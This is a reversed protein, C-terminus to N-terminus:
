IKMTDRTCFCLCCELLYYSKDNFSYKHKWAILRYSGQATTQQHRPSPWQVHLSQLLPSIPMPSLDTCNVSFVMRILQITTCIESNDGYEQM